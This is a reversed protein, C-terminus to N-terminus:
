PKNAYVKWIAFTVDGALVLCPSRGAQVDEDILKDAVPLSKVTLDSAALHTQMTYTNELITM